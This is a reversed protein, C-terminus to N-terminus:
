TSPSFMVPAVDNEHSAAVGAWGIGKAVATVTVTVNVMGVPVLPAAVAM